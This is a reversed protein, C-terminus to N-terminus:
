AYEKITDKLISCQEYLEEAELRKLDEKMIEIALEHDGYLRM